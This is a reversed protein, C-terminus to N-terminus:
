EKQTNGGKKWEVNTLLPAYIDDHIDIHLSKIEDKTPPHDTFRIFPIDSIVALPTQENGEGMVFTSATALSDIVSTQEFKFPRGFLDPKGKYDYLPDFGCWAISTGTVGWRTPTTHSDTIIVGLNGIHHKEKLYAWIATATRYPDKPWLIYMGNGNSEDIGSSAILHDGKLTLTIHFKEFYEKDEIYADAESRILEIKDTSDNIPLCRGECISIIKSTVAVVSNERIKPLYSDLVDTLVSGIIVPNTKYAQIEM